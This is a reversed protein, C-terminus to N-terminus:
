KVMHHDVAFRVLEARNNTDTKRFLSSVYKEVTRPSLYLRDGIQANSLGDSILTLVDQERSTLDPKPEEARKGLKAKELAMARDQATQLAVQNIWAAQILQSRELLNRVVAGIEDLEFPKPLYADCGMQYGKIRNETETHASLFIVPLLRWAPHQRVRQVLEYGDVHPMTIDTILLHPQYAFIQRFADEGDTALLVSYGELELYDSISLRTGEDDEAVLITLPM